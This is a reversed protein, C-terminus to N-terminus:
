GGPRPEGLQGGPRLLFAVQGRLRDVPEHEAAQIVRVREVAVRVGAVVQEVAAAPDREEVVPQDLVEGVDLEFREDM